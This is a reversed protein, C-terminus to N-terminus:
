RLLRRLHGTLTSFGVYLETLSSIRALLDGITALLDEEDSGLRRVDLAGAPLTLSQLKPFDVRSLMVELHLAELPINHVMELKSIYEPEALRLIYFLQKLALSDARFGVFRLKLPCYRMLLFVQAVMEYNRGTIFGNLQVEISTEFASQLADTAQMAVVTEYCMKTLLQTRAWRGLTSQCPCTQHAVDKLATLDVVHLSKTYTRPPSLVYDKLFCSILFTQNTIMTLQYCTLAPSCILLSFKKRSQMKKFASYHASVLHYICHLRSIMPKLKLVKLGTLIATLCLRCTRSTLDMQCDATKGLLVHINLEPLPWTQVLDHLLDAQEHLYCAKFLLPYVNFSVCSLNERASVGSQVFGEAALFRLSRMDGPTM